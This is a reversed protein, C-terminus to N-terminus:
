PGIWRLAALTTNDSTPRNAAVASEALRQLSNRLPEGPVAFGRGIQLDSV